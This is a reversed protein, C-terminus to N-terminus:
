QLGDIKSHLAQATDEDVEPNKKGSRELIDGTGDLLSKKWLKIM